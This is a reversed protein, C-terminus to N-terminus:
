TQNESCLGAVGFKRHNEETTGPLHQSLVKFYDVAVKNWMRGLADHVIIKGNSVM